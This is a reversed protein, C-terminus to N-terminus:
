NHDKIVMHLSITKFTLHNCFHERKGHNQSPSRFLCKENDVNIETVLCDKLNTLDNRRILPLSEKFYICVGGRKISNPHDAGLLSYGNIQLTILLSDLTGDDDPITSDLFTESLYVINFNSATIFAEVLPVKIFEHAALGNLNWHCFKINSSRKPGLNIEIDGSLLLLHKFNNIFFM